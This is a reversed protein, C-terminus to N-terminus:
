YVGKFKLAPHIKLVNTMSAEAEERSNYFFPCGEATLLVCRGGRHAATIYHQEIGSLDEFKM